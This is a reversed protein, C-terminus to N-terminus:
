RRIRANLIDALEGLRQVLEEGELNVSAVQGDATKYDIRMQSSVSEVHSTWEYDVISSWPLFLPKPYTSVVIIGRSSVILYIANAYQSPFTKRLLSRLWRLVGYVVLFGTPIMLWQWWTFAPRGFYSSVLTLSLLSVFPGVYLIASLPFDILFTKLFAFTASPNERWYAKEIWGENATALAIAEQYRGDAVVPEGCHVCAALQEAIPRTELPKNCAFCAFGAAESM